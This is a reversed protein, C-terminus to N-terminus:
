VRRFVRHTLRATRARVPVRSKYTAAVDAVDGPPFGVRRTVEGRVASV